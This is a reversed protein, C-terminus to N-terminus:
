RLVGAEAARADTHVRVRSFDHGFRSEYFGQTAEDLPQGPSRLAEHVISPVESVEDSNVARRQLM